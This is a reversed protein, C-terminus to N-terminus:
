YVGYEKATKIMVELNEDKGEDAVAGIDLIFGGDKGAADIPVLTMGCIPCEGPQNSIYTPHMPCHYQAPGSAPGSWPTLGFYSLIMILAFLTMGGLIIWRVVAMTHTLRPAEEEGEPLPEHEHPDYKHIEESM